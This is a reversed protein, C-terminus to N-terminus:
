HVKMMPSIFFKFVATCLTLISSTKKQSTEFIRKKCFCSVREIGEKNVYVGRLCSRFAARLPLALTRVSPLAMKHGIEEM